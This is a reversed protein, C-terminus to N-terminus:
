GAYERCSIESGTGLGLLAEEMPSSGAVGSKKGDVRGSLGHQRGPLRGQTPTVNRTVGQKLGCKTVAQEGWGARLLHDWGGECPHLRNRMRLGAVLPREVARDGQLEQSPSQYRAWEVPSVSLEGVHEQLPVGVRERELSGRGQGDGRRGHLNGAKEEVPQLQHRCRVDAQGPLARLGFIEVYVDQSVETVKDKSCLRGIAKKKGKLGHAM